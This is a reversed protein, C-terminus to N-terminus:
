RAALRPGPRAATPHGVLGDELRDALYSDLDPTRPELVHRVWASREHEVPPLEWVCGILPKTLETFDTPDDGYSGLFPQDGSAATRCHLVNDWVWSYANLYTGAAGRHLVMVTVPPTSEDDFDPYLKPLYDTAARRLADDIALGPTVIEYRKVHRGAVVGGYFSRSEKADFPM